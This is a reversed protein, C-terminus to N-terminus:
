TQERLLRGNEKRPVKGDHVKAAHTYFSSFVLPRRVHAYSKYTAYDRRCGICRGEHIAVDPYPLHCRSCDM